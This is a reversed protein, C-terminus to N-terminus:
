LSSNEERGNSKEKYCEPCFLDVKKQKSFVEVFWTRVMEKNTKDYPKKCTLCETGTNLMLDITSVAEKGMKKQLTRREKRNM